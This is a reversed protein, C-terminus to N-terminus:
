QQVQRLAPTLSTMLAYFEQREDRSRMDLELTKKGKALTIIVQAAGAGSNEGKKGFDLSVIESFLVTTSASSKGGPKPSSSAKTPTIQLSSSQLDVTMRNLSRSGTWSSQLSLTLTDIHTLSMTQLPRAQTWTANSVMNIMYETKPPSLQQVERQEQQKQDIQYSM